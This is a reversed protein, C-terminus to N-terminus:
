CSADIILQLSRCHFLDYKLIGDPVSQYDEDSCDSELVTAPDFWSEEVSGPLAMM